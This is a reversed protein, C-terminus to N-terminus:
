QNIRQELITFIEKAYEYFKQAEKISPKGSPLLGLDGPYRAEIYLADLLEILDQNYPIETRQFLTELKHIKPVESENAELYAKLCKEITQQAHFAVMHTLHPNSIIEEMVLLNDKAANLREQAIERGM